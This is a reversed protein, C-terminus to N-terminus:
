ERRPSPAALAAGGLPGGMCDGSRRVPRPAGANGVGRPRLPDGGRRRRQQLQIGLRRGAPEGRHRRACRGRCRIGSHLRPRPRPPHRGALRATGRQGASRTRPAHAIREINVGMARVEDASLPQSRQDLRVSAGRGLWVRVPGPYPPATSAQTEAPADVPGPGAQFPISPNNIAVDTGSLWIGRGAAVQIWPSDVGGYPLIFMATPPRELRVISAGYLAALQAPSDLYVRARLRRAIGGVEGASIVVIAGDSDDVLALTFQGDFSGVHITEAYEETRWTRGPVPADPAVGELISLARHVGAEAVALAAASRYRTGARTLQQNMLWVFSSSWAAIALLVILVVLLATGECERLARRKIHTPMVRNRSAAVVPVDEGRRPVRDLILMSRLSTYWSTASAQGRSQPDGRNARGAIRGTGGEPQKSRAATGDDSPGVVPAALFWARWAAVLSRVFDRHTRSRCPTPGGGVSYPRLPASHIAM